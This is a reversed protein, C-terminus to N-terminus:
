KGSLKQIDKALKNNASVLEDYIVFSSIGFGVGCGALFSSFREFFSSGGSPKTVTQQAVPPVPTALKSSSENPKTSALDSSFKRVAKIAQQRSVRFM